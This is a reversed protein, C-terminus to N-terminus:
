FSGFQNCLKRSVICSISKQVKLGITRVKSHSAVRDSVPNLRKFVVMALGWLQAGLTKMGFLYFKSNLAPVSQEWFTWALLKVMICLFGGLQLDNVRM